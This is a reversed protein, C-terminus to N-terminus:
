REISVPSRVVPPNWPRTTKSGPISALEAEPCTTDHVLIRSEGVFYTHFGEVVLNYCSVTEGDRMSGLEVSGKLTLLRKGPTLHKTMEWGQGPIWFRHGRTAGITEKGLVLDQTPAPAGVTVALIPRFDVEGTHPSQALVLDGIVLEEIHVPGSPTWV